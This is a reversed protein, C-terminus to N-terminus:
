PVDKNVGSSFGHKKKLELARSLYPLWQKVYQNYSCSVQPYQKAGTFYFGVFRIDKMGNATLMKEIDRLNEINDDIVVISLPTINKFRLFNVLVKGKKISRSEGNTFIVGQNFTPCGGFTSEFGQLIFITEEFPKSFEIGLETLKKLRRSMVDTFPLTMNATLGFLKIDKTRLYLILEMLSEDVLSSQLDNMALTVATDILDPDKFEDPLDSFFSDKHEMINKYQFGSLTPHILTFDIDFFCVSTDDCINNSKEQLFHKIQHFKEVTYITANIPVLFWCLFFVFINRLKTEM